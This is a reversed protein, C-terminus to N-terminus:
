PDPSFFNIVLLWSYALKKKKKKGKNYIYIYLGMNPGHVITLVHM